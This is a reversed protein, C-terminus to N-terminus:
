VGVVMYCVLLTAIFYDFTFILQFFVFLIAEFVSCLVKVGPLVIAELFHRIVSQRCCYLLRLFLVEFRSM